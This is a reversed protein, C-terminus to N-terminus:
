RGTITGAAPTAPPMALTGLSHDVEHLDLASLHDLLNVWDTPDDSAMLSFKKDSCLKEIGVGTRDFEIDGMPYVLSSVAAHIKLAKALRSSPTHDSGLPIKTPVIYGNPNQCSDTREMQINAATQERCYVFENEEIGFELWRDREIRGPGEM